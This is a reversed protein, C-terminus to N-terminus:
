PNIRPPFILGRPEFMPQLLIGQTGFARPPQTPNFGMKRLMNEVRLEQIRTLVLGIMAWHLTSKGMLQRQTELSTLEDMAACAEELSMKRVEAYYNETAPM